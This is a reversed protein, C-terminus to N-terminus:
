TSGPGGVKGVLSYLYAIWVTAGVFYLAAALGYTVACVLAFTSVLESSFSRSLIVFALCAIVLLIILSVAIPILMQTIMIRRHRASIPIGRLIGTVIIDSRNNAWRDHALFLVSGFLYLGLMIAIAEADSM